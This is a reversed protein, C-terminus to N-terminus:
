GTYFLKLHVWAKTLRTVQNIGLTSVFVQAAKSGRNHM